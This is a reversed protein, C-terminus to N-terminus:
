RGTQNRKRNRGSRQGAALRQVNAQRRRSAPRREVDSLGNV